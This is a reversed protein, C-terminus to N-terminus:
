ASAVTSPPEYSARVARDGDLEIIWMSGKESRVPDTTSMGEDVLRAVLDPILDGHGVLAAPQSALSRLLGLAGALDAGEDLEARVEVALGRDAALPEATQRCRVMPSSLVREVPVGALRARLAEAQRRGKASLPRETDDGAWARRSGAHAHRILFAPV